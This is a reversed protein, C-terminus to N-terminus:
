PHAGNEKVVISAARWDEVVISEDHRIQQSAKRPRRGREFVRLAADKPVFDNAFDTFCVFGNVRAFVGALLKETATM